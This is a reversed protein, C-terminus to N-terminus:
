NVNVWELNIDKGSGCACPRMATPELDFKMELSEILFGVLIIRQAQVVYLKRQLGM